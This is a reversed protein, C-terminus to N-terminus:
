TTEGTRAELGSKLHMKYATGPIGGGLEIMVEACVDGNRLAQGAFCGSGAEISLLKVLVVVGDGPNVTTPFCARHIIMREELWSQHPERVIPGGVHLFYALCGAAQAVMEVLLVAPYIPAGPLHGRFVPDNPDTRRQARLYGQQVDVHTITDLLLLPPRQPLIREIVARGYKVPFTTAGAQWLPLSSCVEGHYDELASKLYSM